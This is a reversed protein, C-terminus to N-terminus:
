FMNRRRKETEVIERRKSVPDTPDEKWGYHTIDMM